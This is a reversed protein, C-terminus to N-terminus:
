QPLKPALSLGPSGNYDVLLGYSRLRPNKTLPLTVNRPASFIASLNSAEPYETTDQNLGPHTSELALQATGTLSIECAYIHDYLRGEDIENQSFKLFTRLMTIPPMANLLDLELYVVNNVQMYFHQFGVWRTNVPYSYTLLQGLKLIWRIIKM